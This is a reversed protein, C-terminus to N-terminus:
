ITFVVLSFTGAFLFSKSDDSAFQECFGYKPNIIGFDEFVAM